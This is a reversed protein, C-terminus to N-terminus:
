QQGGTSACGAGGLAFMGVIGAVAGAGQLKMEQEIVRASTPPWVQILWSARKRGRGM